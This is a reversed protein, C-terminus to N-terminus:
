GPLASMVTVLKARGPMSISIWAIPTIPSRQEASLGQEASPSAFFRQHPVGPEDGIGLVAYREKVFPTRLVFALEKYLRDIVAAPTKAPAFIGVWSTVDFGALGSEEFTPVDPLAASRKASPVGLAGLVDLERRGVDDDLAGVQHGRVRRQLLVLVDIAFAYADRHTAAAGIVEEQRAAHDLARRQHARRAGRGGDLKEHMVLQFREGADLLREDGKGGRM